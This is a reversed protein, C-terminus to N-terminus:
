VFGAVMVRKGNRIQEYAEPPPPLVQVNVFGVKNMLWLLGELSPVLCIGSMSAESGHTEQTEDVIGFAGMLPKTYLYSGYDIVGTMGPAVQTELLCVKRTVERARRLARVPDELHYLLGFMLVIDFQGHIERKLDDVQLKEVRLNTKGYINRILTTDAVHEDRADIALVDAGRQALYNAFFGQHCAIDLATYRSLSEGFHSNLAQELMRLRTDHIPTIADTGAYTRTVRGSPLKFPYFWERSLALDELDM